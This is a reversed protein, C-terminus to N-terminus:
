VDRLTLIVSCSQWQKSQHSIIASDAVTSDVCWQCAGGTSVTLGAITLEKVRVGKTRVCVCVCVCAFVCVSVGVCLRGALRIIPFPELQFTWAQMRPPAFSVLPTLPACTMTMSSPIEQESSACWCDILGVAVKCRVCVSIMSFWYLFLFDIQQCSMNSM